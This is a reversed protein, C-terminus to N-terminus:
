AFQLGVYIILDGYKAPQDKQKKIFYVLSMRSAQTPCKLQRLHIENDHDILDVNFQYETMFYYLHKNSAPLNILAPSTNNQTSAYETTPKQAQSEGITYQTHM